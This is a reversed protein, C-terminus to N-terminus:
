ALSIAMKASSSRGGILSALWQWQWINEGHRKEGNNRKTLIKAMSMNEEIRWV